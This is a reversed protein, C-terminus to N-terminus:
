VHARGIETIADPTFDLLRRSAAVITLQQLSLKVLAPNAIGMAQVVATKLTALEQSTFSLKAFYISFQFSPLSTNYIECYDLPTSSVRIFGTNCNFDCAAKAISPTLTSNLPYHVALVCDICATQFTLSFSQPGCATCQTTSSNSFYGAPCPTCPGASSEAYSGPQCATCATSHPASIYGPACSICQQLTQSRFLM